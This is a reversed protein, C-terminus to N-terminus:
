LYIEFLVKTNGMLIFLLRVYKDKDTGYGDLWGM